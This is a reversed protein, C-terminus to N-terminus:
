IRVSDGEGMAQMLIAVRSVELVEDLPIPPPAKGDAAALFAALAEPHGKHPAKSWPWGLSAGGLGSSTLRAWNHITASWGEGSVEVQEKPVEPPLDTRYDIHASSGDTFGLEFCGGDQGDVDRRTCRVTAIPHGVLYRALDVFHCAEGVIRGGGVSPDLTWHDSDLVGANVIMQLQLPKVKGRLSAALCTAAPAFRRNFGVMMCAGSMRAAAAVEDLEALTLALPKEVWVSKGAAIVASAQRAHADHRTCLFVPNASPNSLIDGLTSSARGAGFERAALVAQHGQNSAVVSLQDVGIGRLAPLLTRFAFNGAGVLAAGARPAAIEVSTVPPSAMSGYDLLIGLAGSNLVLEDYAFSADKFDYRRSVLDGVRLSGASMLALIERFNGEASGPGSKTKDGYSYSVQVSVESRFFFPRHLNLGVVGVSIIKARARCALASENVLESSPTSAAIIVGDVGKGQTWERAGRSLKRGAPLAKVGHAMALKVRDDAPDSGMVECGKAVLIRAALQGILGLGVVLVRQGPKPDLLNVGQLAVAAIPTFAASEDDVNGPIRACLRLPVSAQDGHCANTVVRDGQVLGAGPAAHAAVGVMSYGLTMPQALKARIAKYTDVFGNARIKARIEALKDRAQSIKGLIGSRGFGVLMRETGASILSYRARVVLRGPSPVVDPCEIISTKGTNLYQLLTRM